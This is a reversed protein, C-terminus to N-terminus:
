IGSEGIAGGSCVRVDLAGTTQVPLDRVVIRLLPERIESSLMGFFESGNEDAKSPGLKFFDVEGNAYQVQLSVNSIGAVETRLHVYVPGAETAAGEKASFDIIASGPQRIQVAESKLAQASCAGLAAPLLQRFVAPARANLNAAGPFTWILFRPPEQWFARTNLLRVMADLADLNVLSANAVALQTQQGIFGPLDTEGPALIEPGLLMLATQLGGGENVFLSGAAREFVFRPEREPPYAVRCGRRIEASMASHVDVTATKRAIIRTKPVNEYAPLHTLTESVALAIAQAGSTSVHPNRKLYFPAAPEAALSSLDVTTVGLGRLQEILQHFSQSVEDAVYVRQTPDEADLSSSLMVGRPPLPMLVLTIGKQTLLRDFTKLLLGTERNLLAPESLDADIDFFVGDRGRVLRPVGTLEDPAFMCTAPGAIGTRSQSQAQVETLPWCLPLLALAAAAMRRRCAVIM